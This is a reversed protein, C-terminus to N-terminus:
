DLSPLKIIQIAAAVMCCYFRFYCCNIETNVVRHEINLVWCHEVAGQQKPTRLQARINSM